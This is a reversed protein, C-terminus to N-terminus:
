GMEGGFEVREDRERGSSGMGGEWRGEEVVM